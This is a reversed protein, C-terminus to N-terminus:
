LNDGLNLNSKSKFHTISVVLLSFLCGSFAIILASLVGLCQEAHCTLLVSAGNITAVIVSTVIGKILSKAFNLKEKKSRAVFYDKLGFYLVLFPTLSYVSLAGFGEFDISRLGPIALPSQKIVIQHTNPDTEALGSNDTISSKINPYFESAIFVSSGIVLVIILTLIIRLVLKSDYM